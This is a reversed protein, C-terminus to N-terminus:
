GCKRIIEGAKVVALSLGPIAQKQMEAAIYEDVKDAQARVSSQIFLAFFLSIPVVAQRRNM